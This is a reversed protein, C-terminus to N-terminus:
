ADANSSSAFAPTSYFVGAITAATLEGVSHGMVVVPFVGWSQWLQALAYGISFIAPQTWATQDIVAADGVKAEAFMIPLLREGRVERVIADCRDLATRFVPQTDYLQRGMGVYQSGQGTFLWAVRPPTATDARSPAAAALAARMEEHSSGVVAIRWDFHDRGANATHCIDALAAGRTPELLPGYQDRLHTLLDDDKASLALIEASRGPAAARARGAIPEVHM